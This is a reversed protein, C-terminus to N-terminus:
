VREFEESAGYCDNEPLCALNLFSGLILKGRQSLPVLEDIVEKLMESKIRRYRSKIITGDLQPEIVMESVKGNKDYSVTVKIDARVKFTESFPAGYKLRL